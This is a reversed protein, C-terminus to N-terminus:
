ISTKSHSQCHQQLNRCLTTPIARKLALHQYFYYTKPRSHLGNRLKLDNISSSLDRIPMAGPLGLAYARAKMVCESRGNSGTSTTIRPAPPAPIIHAMSAPRRPRETARM